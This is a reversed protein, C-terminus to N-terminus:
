PLAAFFDNLNKGTKPYQAQAKAILPKLQKEILDNEVYLKFANVVASGSGNAAIWADIQRQVYSTYAPHNGHF